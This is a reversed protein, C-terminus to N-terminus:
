NSDFVISGLRKLSSDVRDFDSTTMQSILFLLINTNFNLGKGKKLLTSSRM